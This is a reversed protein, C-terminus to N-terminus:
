DTVPHGWIRTESCVGVAGDNMGAIIFSLFSFALRGVNGKPKNWREVERHANPPPESPDAVTASPNGESDATAKPNPNGRPSGSHRLGVSALEIASPEHTITATQSM